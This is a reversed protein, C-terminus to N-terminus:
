WNKFEKDKKDKSNLYNSSIGDPIFLISHILRSVILIGFLIFFNTMYELTFPNNKDTTNILGYFIMVFFLVGYFIHIASWFKPETHLLNGTESIRGKVEIRGKHNVEIVFFESSDLYDFEVYVIKKRNNTKTKITENAKISKVSIIKGTSVLELKKIENKTITKRGNNYFLIRSTFEKESDTWDSIDNCEKCIRGTSFVLRYFTKYYLYLAVLISILFLVFALINSLGIIEIYKLLIEAM